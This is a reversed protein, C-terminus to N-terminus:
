EVKREEEAMKGFKNRMKSFLEKVIEVELEGKM